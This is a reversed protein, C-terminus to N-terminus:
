EGSSTVLYAQIGDGVKTYFLGFDNTTLTHEETYIYDNEPDQNNIGIYFKVNLDQNALIQNTLPDHAVAQYNFTNINQSHITVVGFLFVVLYFLIKFLRMNYM